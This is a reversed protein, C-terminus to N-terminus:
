ESLSRRERMNSIRFQVEFTNPESRRLECTYDSEFLDTGVCFSSEISLQANVGRQQGIMLADAACRTQSLRSLKGDSNM